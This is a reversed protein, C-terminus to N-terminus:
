FGQSRGPGPDMSWFYEAENQFCTRIIAFVNANHIKSYVWHIYIYVLEYLPLFFMQPHQVWFAIILCWYISYPQIKHSANASSSNEFCQCKTSVSSEFCQWKLQKWIMTLLSFCIAYISDVSSYIMSWVSWNRRYIMHTMYLLFYWIYSYIMYILIYWPHHQRLITLFPPSSSQTNFARM